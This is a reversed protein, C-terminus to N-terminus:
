TIHVNGQKNEKFKTSKARFIATFM